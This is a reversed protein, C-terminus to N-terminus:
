RDEALDSKGAIRAAMLANDTLVVVIGCEQLFKYSAQPNRHRHAEDTAVVVRAIGSNAILKACGFCVHSTTYITAGARDHRDAHLIANAEAHLSPCDEYNPSLSLSTTRACWISCPQSGHVFGKPPGNYGEGVIRDRVDVIVAGVKSRTCLSREAIIKAMQIRTEDWTPRPM